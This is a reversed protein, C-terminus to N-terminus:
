NASLPRESERYSNSLSVFIPTNEGVYSGLVNFDMFEIADMCSMGDRLMLIGISLDYDYVAVNMQHHNQTIGILAGEFGDALLAEGEELRSMLEERDM